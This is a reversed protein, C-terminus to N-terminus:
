MTAMGYRRAAAVALGTGISGFTDGTCVRAAPLRGAICAQL